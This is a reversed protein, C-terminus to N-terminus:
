PFSSASSSARGSGRRVQASANGPARRPPLPRRLPSPLWLSPQLPWAWLVDMEQRLAEMPLSARPALRGRPDQSERVQQCAQRAQSQEEPHLVAGRRQAQAGPRPEQPQLQEPPWVDEPQQWAQLPVQQRLVQCGQRPLARRPAQLSLVESGSAGLSGQRRERDDLSEQLVARQQRQEQPESVRREALPGAIDKEHPRATLGLDPCAPRAVPFAGLQQVPVPEGWRGM